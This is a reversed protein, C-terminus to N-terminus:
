RRDTAIIMEFLKQFERGSATATPAEFVEITWPKSEGARYAAHMGIDDFGATAPIVMTGSRATLTVADGIVEREENRFLVRIGAPGGAISLELVPLLATGRRVTDQKPGETIPARWYSTAGTVSVHSGKVPFDHNDVREPERPLLSRSILLVAVAGIVLVAVLAILGIREAKALGLRPIVSVPAAPTGASEKAPLAPAVSAAPAPEVAAPSAPAEAVVDPPPSEVVDEEVGAVEPLDELESELPTDQWSELDDFDGEPKAAGAPKSVAAIKEAPRNVNMQIGPGHAAQGAGPKTGGIERPREKQRERPVPIDRAASSKGGSEERAGSDEPSELDDDFAWLDLETTDKVLDGLSPRHRPPLPSGESPRPSDPTM